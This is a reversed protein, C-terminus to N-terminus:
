SRKWDTFLSAAPILSQSIDKFRKLLVFTKILMFVYRDDYRGIMMGIMLKDDCM